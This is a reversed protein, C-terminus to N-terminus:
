HNRRRHLALNCVSELRNPHAESVPPQYGKDSSERRRPEAVRKRAKEGGQLEHIVGVGIETILPSYREAM